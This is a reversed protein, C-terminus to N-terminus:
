VTYYLGCLQPNDGVSHLLVSEVCHGIQTCKGVTSFLWTRMFKLETASVEVTLDYCQCCLESLGALLLERSYLGSATAGMVHTFYILAVAM